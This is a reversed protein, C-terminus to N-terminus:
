LLFMIVAAAKKLWNNFNSHLVVYQKTIENLLPLIKSKLKTANKQSSFQKQFIHVSACWDQKYTGNLRIYWNRATGILSRQTFGM